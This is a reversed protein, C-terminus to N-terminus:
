INHVALLIFNLIFLATAGYMIPHVEKYKGKVVKILVYLIFGFAIGTTISYTFPMM